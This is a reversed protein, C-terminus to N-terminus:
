KSATPWATWHISDVDDVGISMWVGGTEVQPEGPAQRHGQGDLCMFIGCEGSGVAGFTPPSGWDWCKEWGQAKFWAFSKEMDSVNLIPTIHKAHM